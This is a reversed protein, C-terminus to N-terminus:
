FIQFDYNLIVRLQYDDRPAGDERRWAGRPRLWLGQLAGKEFVYDLTIDVEQQDSFKSSNNGVVSRADFGTAFNIFTSFGPVGLEKFDYSIGLLLASESARDFDSVM